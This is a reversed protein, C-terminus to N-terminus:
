CGRRGNRPELEVAMPIYRGSKITDSKCHKVQVLFELPEDFRINQKLLLQYQAILEKTEYRLDGWIEQNKVENQSASGAFPVGQNGLWDM